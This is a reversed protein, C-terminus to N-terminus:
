VKMNGQVTQGMTCIVAYGFGFSSYKKNLRLACSLSTEYARQLKSRLSEAPLFAADLRRESWSFLIGAGAPGITKFLSMATMAIGNAAGRQNQDSLVNLLISACNLLISQSLGTLNAIFPYSIQMPIMLALSFNKCFLMLSLSIYVQIFKSYISLEKTDDTGSIFSITLLVIESIVLVTGVENTSYSLGGYIKPSNSCVSFI